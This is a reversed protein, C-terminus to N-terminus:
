IDVALIKRAWAIAALWLAFAICLLAYGHLTSWLPSLLSPNLHNIIGIMPFPVVAIVFAQAKGEATKTRVVGELRAIERLASASTELTDPLNGGTNRAIRLAGLAVNVTRSHLRRAMTRLAADLPNGLSYENLMLTLEHSLPQPVLRSSAELAEGLSPTARLANALVVLWTDVQTDIEGVRKLRAHGLLRKPLLLALPTLTLALPYGWAAAAALAIVVLVQCIVTQTASLSARVFRLDVDLEHHYNRLFRGAPGSAEQVLLVTTAVAGLPLLVSAAHRMVATTLSEDIV